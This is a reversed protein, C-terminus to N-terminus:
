TTAHFFRYMTNIWLRAHIQRLSGKGPIRFEGVIWHGGPKLASCGKAVLDATESQSLCDLFFNTVVLDYGDMPLPSSRADAQLFTVRRQDAPSLRRRALVIMRESSEIVDVSARSNRNLLDSLFRGDGEGLILVRSLEDLYPLQALRCRELTRGFAVYELWRYIGAIPDANM